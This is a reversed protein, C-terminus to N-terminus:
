TKISRYDGDDIIRYEIGAITDIIRLYEDPPTPILEGVTKPNSFLSVVLADVIKGFQIM